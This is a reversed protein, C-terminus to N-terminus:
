RTLTIFFTASSKDPLESKSEDCNILLQLTAQESSVVDTSYTTKGAKPISQM